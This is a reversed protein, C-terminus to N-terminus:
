RMGLKRFDWLSLCMCPTIIRRYRTSNYGYTLECLLNCSENNVKNLCNYNCLVAERCKTDLMCLMFQKSCNVLVCIGPGIVDQFREFNEFGAFAHHVRAAGFALFSLILVQSIKSTMVSSTRSTNWSLDCEPMLYIKTSTIKVSSRWVFNRLRWLHITDCNNALRHPWWDCRTYIFYSIWWVSYSMLYDGCM